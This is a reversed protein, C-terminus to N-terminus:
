TMPELGIERKSKWRSFYSKVPKGESSLETTARILSTISKQLLIEYSIFSAARMWIDAAGDYSTLGLKTKTEKDIAALLDKKKLTM